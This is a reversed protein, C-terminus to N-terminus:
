VTKLTIGLNKANTVANAKVADAGAFGDELFVVVRAGLALADVVVQDTIELSLVVAVGGAEIVTADGADSETWRADLSVGEKILVEAAIVGADQESDHLTSESLDFLDTPEVGIDGRFNSEALRYSRVGRAGVDEIAAVIRARTIDSVYEYDDYGTPEPLQVAIFRRNGGDAANHQLVADATSGSGAFFDLIVDGDTPSTALTLMRRILRTPKPTDFVSDSSAFEVRKLLEQKAHQNHGVESHPWITQPIRGGTMESLFRKVGLCMLDMAAGGFGAM